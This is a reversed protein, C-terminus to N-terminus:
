ADVRVTAPGRALTATAGAPPQVVIGGPPAIPSTLSLLLSGDSERRLGYDLTGYATRLGTVGVEFGGALWAEPIGAALM